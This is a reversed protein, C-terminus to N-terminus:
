RSSGVPNWSRRRSFVIQIVTTSKPDHVEVKYRSDLVQTIAETNIQTNERTNEGDVGQTKGTNMTHWGGFTFSGSILTGGQIM